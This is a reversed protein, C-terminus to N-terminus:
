WDPRAPSFRAPILGALEGIWWAFFDRLGQRFVVLLRTM